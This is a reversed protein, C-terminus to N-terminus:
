DDKCDLLFTLVGEALDLLALGSKIKLDSRVQTFAYCKRRSIVLVSSAVAM